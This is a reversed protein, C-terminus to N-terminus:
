GGNKRSLKDQNLQDLLPKLLPALKQLEERHSSSLQELKNEAAKRALLCSVGCCFASNRWRTITGM